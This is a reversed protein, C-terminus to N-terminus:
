LTLANPAAVIRVSLGAGSGAGVVVKDDLGAELATSWVLSEAVVQAVDLM